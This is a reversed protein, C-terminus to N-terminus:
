QGDGSRKRPRGRTKRRPAPSQPQIAPHDPAERAQRPDQGREVGHANKVESADADGIDIALLSFWTGSEPDQWREKVEGKTTKM